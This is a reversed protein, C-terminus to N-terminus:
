SWFCISETVNAYTIASFDLLSTFSPTLYCIVITAAINAVKAAIGVKPALGLFLM